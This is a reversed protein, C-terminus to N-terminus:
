ETSESDFLSLLDNLASLYGYHWHVQEVTGADLHKQASELGPANEALWRRLERAKDSIAQIQSPEISYHRIM